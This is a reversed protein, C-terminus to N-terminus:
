KGIVWKYDTLGTHPGLGIVATCGTGYGTQEHDRCGPIPTNKDVGRSSLIDGSHGALSIKSDYKIYGANEIDKLSLTKKFFVAYISFLYSVFTLIVIIVIGYSM